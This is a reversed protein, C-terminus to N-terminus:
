NKLVNGTQEAFEWVSVILDKQGVVIIASLPKHDVDKQAAALRGSSRVILIGGVPDMFLVTACGEGYVRDAM